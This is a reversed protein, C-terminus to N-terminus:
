SASKAAPYLHRWESPVTDGEGLAWTIGLAIGALLAARSRWERREAHLALDRARTAEAIMQEATRM